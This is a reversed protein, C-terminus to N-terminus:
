QVDKVSYTSSFDEDPSYGFTLDLPIRLANLLAIAETDNNKIADIYSPVAIYKVGSESGAQVHTNRMVTTGTKYKRDPYLLDEFLFNSPGVRWDQMKGAAKPDLESVSFWSISKGRPAGVEGYSKFSRGYGGYGGNKWNCGEDLKKVPKVEEIEVKPNKDDLIKKLQDIIEAEAEAATSATSTFNMQTGKVKAKVTFKPIISEAMQSEKIEPILDIVFTGNSPDMQFVKYAQKKVRFMIKDLDKALNRALEKKFDGVTMYVNSMSEGFAAMEDDHSVENICNENYSWSFQPLDHPDVVDLIKVEEQWNTKFWNLLAKSADEKTIGPMIMWGRGGNKTEFNIAWDKCDKSYITKEEEFVIKQEGPLGENPTLEETEDLGLMLLKQLDAGSRALAVLQNYTFEGNFDKEWQSISKGQHLIEDTNNTM